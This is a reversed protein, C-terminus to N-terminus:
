NSDDAPSGVLARGGSRLRYSLGAVERLMELSASAVRVRSRSDHVYLVPVEAVRIGARQARMLLEVDFAFGPCIQPELLRRGIEAPMLKFGCQTDRVQLGTLLRVAENFAKGTVKRHLPGREVEAGPVSRSGIAIEAGEAVAAALKGLESLPTSLDVDAVLVWEARARRMGAAVAAGKGMNRGFEAIPRLTRNSEAAARLVESTRDSSGDDVILTERLEYGSRAVSEAASDALEDLLVPLREEENYAPIVLSLTPM